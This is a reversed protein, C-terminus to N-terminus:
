RPGFDTPWMADGGYGEYTHSLAGSRGLLDRSWVEGDPDGGHTIPHEEPGFAGKEVIRRVDEGDVVAMGHVWRYHNLTEHVLGDDNAAELRQGCGCLMARM